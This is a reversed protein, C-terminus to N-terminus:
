VVFCKFLTFSVSNNQSRELSKFLKMCLDASPPTKEFFLCFLSNKKPCRSILEMVFFIYDETQDVELNKVINKHDLSSLLDAELMIASIAAKNFNSCGIEKVAVFQGTNKDLANYVRGFNGRGVCEGLLYRGGCVSRTQKGGMSPSSPTSVTKKVEMSKTRDKEGGAAAAASAAPTSKKELVASRPREDSRATTTTTTTTAAGGAGGGGASKTATGPLRKLNDILREKLRQARAAPLTQLLAFVESKKGALLKETLEGVLEGSDHGDTERGRLFFFFLFLCM